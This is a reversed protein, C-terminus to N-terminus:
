AVDQAQQVAKKAITNNLQIIADDSFNQRMRKIHEQNSLTKDQLVKQWMEPTIADGFQQTIGKDLLVQRIANLDGYNETSSMYHQGMQGYADLAPDPYGKAFKPQGGEVTVTDQWLDQLRTSERGEGYRKDVGQLWNNRNYFMWTEKPSLQSPLAENFEDVKYRSNGGVVHGLEHAKVYKDDDKSLIVNPIDKQTKPDYVDVQKAQPGAKIVTSKLRELRGKILEDPNKVGMKVLRNKYTPSSIYQMMDTINKDQKKSSPESTEEGGSELVDGESSNAWGEIGVGAKALGKFQNAKTKMTNLAAGSIM